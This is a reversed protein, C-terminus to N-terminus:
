KGGPSIDADIRAELDIGASGVTSRKPLSGSSNPLLKIPLENGLVPWHQRTTQM